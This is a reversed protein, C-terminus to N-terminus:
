GFWPKPCGFRANPCDEKFNTGAHALKTDDLLVPRLYYLDRKQFAPSFVQGTFERIEVSVGHFLILQGKDCLIGLGSGWMIFDLIM